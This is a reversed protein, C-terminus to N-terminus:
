STGSVLAPRLAWALHRALGAPVLGTGNEVKHRLDVQSFSRGLQLVQPGPNMRETHMEENM